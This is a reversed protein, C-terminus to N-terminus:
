NILSSLLGNDNKCNGNPLFIKLLTPSPLGPPKPAASVIRNSRSFNPLKDNKVSLSLNVGENIDLNSAAPLPSRILNIGIM